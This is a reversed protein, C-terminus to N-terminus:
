GLYSVLSVHSVAFMNEFKTLLAAASTAPTHRDATAATAAVATCTGSAPWALSGAGPTVTGVFIGIVLSFANGMSLAAAGATVSVPFAATEGFTVPWDASLVDGPTAGM